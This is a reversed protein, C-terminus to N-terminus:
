PLLTRSAAVKRYAALLQERVEPKLPAPKVASGCEKCLDISLKLSNIFEVCPACSCIHADFRACEEPSLESDLYESLHAFIDKCDPM